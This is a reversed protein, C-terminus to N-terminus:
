HQRGRLVITFPAGRESVFLFPGGPGERQLQRLARLENGRLPGVTRDTGPAVIKLSPKTM